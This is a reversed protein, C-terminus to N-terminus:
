SSFYYPVNLTKIFNNIFQKEVKLRKRFDLWEKRNELLKRFNPMDSHPKGFTNFNINYLDIHTYLYDIFTMEVKKLFIDTDDIERIIRFEFDNIDCDSLDANLKKNPHTKNIIRKKHDEFRVQVNSTSGIYYRNKKTNFLFYICKM